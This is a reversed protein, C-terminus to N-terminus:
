VEESYAQTGLLRVDLIIQRNSKQIGLKSGMEYEPSVYRGLGAFLVHKRARAM